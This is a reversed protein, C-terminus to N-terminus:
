WIQMKEVRLNIRCSSLRRRQRNKRLDVCYGKAFIRLGPNAGAKSPRNTPARREVFQLCGLAARYYATRTEHDFAAAM